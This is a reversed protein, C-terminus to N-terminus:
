TSQGHSLKLANYHKAQWAEIKTARIRGCTLNIPQKTTWNSLTPNVM